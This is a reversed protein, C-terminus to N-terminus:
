PRSRHLANKVCGSPRWQPLRKSNWFMILQKTLCGALKCPPMTGSRLCYDLLLMHETSQAMVVFTHRLKVTASLAIARKRPVDSVMNCEQSVPSALNHPMYPSERNPARVSLLLVHNDESVFPPLLCLRTLSGNPLMIM